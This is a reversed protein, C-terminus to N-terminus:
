TKLTKAHSQICAYQKHLHNAYNRHAQADTKLKNWLPPLVVYLLTATSGVACGILLLSYFPGFFPLPLPTLEVAWEVLFGAIHGVAISLSVLSIGSFVAMCDLVYAKGTELYEFLRCEILATECEKETKIQDISYTIWHTKPDEIKFNSINTKTM